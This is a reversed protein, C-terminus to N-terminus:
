YLNRERAFAIEKIIKYEVNHFFTLIRGKYGKRKLHYAIIGLRSDDIFVLDYKLAEKLINPLSKKNLSEPFGFLYDIRTLIIDIWTKGTISKIQFVDVSEKGLLEVFSHYNRSTCQLGGHADLNIGRETIYLLNM